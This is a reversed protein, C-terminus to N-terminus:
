SYSIVGPIVAPKLMSVCGWLIKKFLSQTGAKPGFNRGYCSKCYIQSERECLISSDVRKNCM